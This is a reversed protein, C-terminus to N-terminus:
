QRFPKFFSRNKSALELMELDGETDGYVSILEYERLNIHQKIRRVKEEGRCNKGVLKGTLTHHADLELESGLIELGIKRCWPELFARPSATVVVVRAGNKKYEAIEQLAKRRIIKEINERCYVEAWQEIQAMTCGYFISTLFAEKLLQDPYRKVLYLAIQPSFRLCTWFYRAPRAARMFGLFSDRCTITGDFDFLALNM